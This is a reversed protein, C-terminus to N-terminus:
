LVITEKSTSNKLKLKPGWIKLLFVLTKFSKVNYFIVFIHFLINTFNLEFHHSKPILKLSLVWLIKKRNRSILDSSTLVFFIENKLNLKWYVTLNISTLTFNLSSLKRMRKELHFSRNSLIFMLFSFYLWFLFDKQFLIM